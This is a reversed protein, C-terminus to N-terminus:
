LDKVTDVLFQNDKKNRVAFRVFSAGQFGEKESLDKILINKLFLKETLEQSGISGTLRCLIYNAQSPYPELWSVSQLERFFKERAIYQKECARKYDERYKGMIQLFYEGFSNINWIPLKKRLQNLFGKDASALVGLRLGPVGYSKSISRLVGLNPHGQLISNAILSNKAGERSFDVFSEDIIIRKSRSNMREALSLLENVEIFNGSPNDPNVVILSDCQESLEELEKIGYRFSPARAYGKVLRSEVVREPYENFCPYMIGINGDLSDMLPPILEAAGNGTLIQDEACGLLAASMTNQIDLGAPYNAALKKFQFKFESLMRPTPFYPNVLYCFDKLRPYEWYGGHRKQITPLAEKLPMFVEEACRLDYVDDIEYWKEQQLVYAKLNKQEIFAIIRLVQEYYENEGMAQIYAELFPFYSNKSFDSSFKYINVTKYYSKIKNWNMDEKPIFNLINYDKDLTVLTGDMWSEYPAVVALNRNKNQVLAEIISPDFILDSELLLSDEELLYDRALYLSYINNTRYYESNNVYILRVGKYQEGLYDRIGQGKYGTVIVIRSLEVQSLASLLHDILKGSGFPIMCKTQNETLNGLRKGMGAALIIAQM